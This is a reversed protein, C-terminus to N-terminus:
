SKQFPFQQLINSDLEPCAAAHVLLEDGTVSVTATSGLARALTRVSAEIEEWDGRAARYVPGDPVEPLPADGVVVVRRHRALIPLLAAALAGPDDTRLV